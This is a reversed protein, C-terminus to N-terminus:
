WHSLNQLEYLQMYM